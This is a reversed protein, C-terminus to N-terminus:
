FKVNLNLGVSSATPLNYYLVGQAFNSTSYSSEPDFNESKKYIFFLNRGTLSLSANKIFTKSLTKPSFKYSLSVERLRVNTQDFVYESAIGSVAGWYQQGTISTTNPKLTGNDDWVGDLTVGDRHELSRTSVGGADLASDTGSYVQGGIRFDVLFNLSLNKYNVTNTIGGTFDPQYNGLKVRESTAQPRGSATLLLQGDDARKWDTGYIDGFGEGVQARVDITGSNNSTFQFFDQGEILSVLKNKNGAINASLNWEFNDTKIPTGGIMLEFGNNTIEGVNERFHTFGTAPDVPVNFILDKSNISYYTFDAFLRNKLAKIEFGVETSTVDEPRLSTSLKVNPSSVTVNGLYGNSAVNFLNVTQHPGTDNGVNAYSLRLKTFNIHESEINFVKNLLLSLSASKYFYSRNEAALASSWDNRGTIDLYAMGKYALSASGYVSNVKKEVLETQSVRLKEPDTNAIFQKGPIKFDEGRISSFKSTSHLANGGFNATLNFDENINKNYMLLFDYNTESTDFTSYGIAGNPAFHHGTASVSETEHDVVDTGVRVFAKFNDNFDYQAKAFGTIRKRFDENKDQNLIWYPNGGSATTSIVGYGQTLDQYNKLDNIDENRGLGYLYAMVGETGQSARNKAGQLFYTVKADLTFKDTIKSFARVNFNNRKVSSNPLMGEMKSNSYSFRLSSNETSKSIAITNVVSSGTRFFDKVNNPQASYARNEGNYYLQQSGDFKPGWSGSSKLQSLDAAFAGNVGRGYQNQYNPLLLPSQVSINSSYSIGLGKGTNGKKTTILVVGNSARSGYLAAANPGKLISISEIDDSNIDSVGTGLDSRSYESTGSGNASGNGSNDIPVGDVVYLPQNNGTISNNGRIVVRTGGAPGSASQTIVVGAVKGALSNVVNSEKALSVADGKLNSVSYGLSKKERSIGLATVVVEDLLNDGDELAVNVKSSNSTITVSSSKMGVFSFTLVDGVSAKISYNGDFDTETGRTSNKVVVSVGPMASGDSKSTVTGSISKEQAVM